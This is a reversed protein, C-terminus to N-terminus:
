RSRAPHNGALRAMMEVVHHATRGDAAPCFRERRRADDGEYRTRLLTMEGEPAHTEELTAYWWATLAYRCADTPVVRHLVTNARLIVVRGAVPSVAHWCKAAEDLLVLQGGDAAADWDPNTYVITTLQCRPSHFGGDFHAGDAAARNSAVRRREVVSAVHRVVVTFLGRWSFADRM